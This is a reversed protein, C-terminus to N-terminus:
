PYTNISWFSIFKGKSQIYKMYFAEYIICYLFINYTSLIAGDPSHTFNSSRDDHRDECYKRATALMSVPRATGTNIAPGTFQGKKWNTSALESEPCWTDISPNQLTPGNQYYGWISLQLVESGGKSWNAIKKVSWWYPVGLILVPCKWYWYQNCWNRFMWYWYHDGLILVPPGSNISPM